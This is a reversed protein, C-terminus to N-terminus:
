LAQADVEWLDGDLHAARVVYDAGAEEGIRELEAIRELTRLGDVEVTLEGAHSTVTVSDGGVPPLEVVRLGRAAVGWEDGSRRIATARYPPEIQGGLADALPALDGDGEEILLDGNPLVVFLASDGRARPVDATTVADWERPRAGHLVDLTGAFPRVPEYRPEWELLGSGKALQEHLPKARRRRWLPM